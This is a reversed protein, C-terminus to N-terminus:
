AENASLIAAATKPAVNGGSVVVAVTKGQVDPVKGALLAGVGAAAGPEAALKAREYLFRFGARIDDESVLVSEVHRELCVALCHEGVVPANLADAISDPRVPVPKGAALGERLAASGEPEVGVVGDLPFIGDSDTNSILLPRPAVLAAVQPYDWRYTNVMYMCDCHGEVCGDVVHNKLDTIGAVPVACKIRM